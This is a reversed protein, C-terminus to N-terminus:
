VSFKYLGGHDFLFVLGIIILFLSLKKKTLREGGYGSSVKLLVVAGIEFARGDSEM